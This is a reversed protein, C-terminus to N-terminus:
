LSPAVLIAGQLQSPLYLIIQKIKWLVEDNTHTQKVNNHVTHKAYGFLFLYSYMLCCFFFLYLFSLIQSSSFTQCNIVIISSITTLKYLNKSTKSRYITYIQLTMHSKYFRCTATSHVYVTFWTDFSKETILAYGATKSYNDQHQINLLLECRM